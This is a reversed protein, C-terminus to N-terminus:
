LWNKLIVKLNDKIGAKLIDDRVILDEEAVKKNNATYIITGVKTGRSLPAELNEILQIEKKINEEDDKALLIKVENKQYVLAEDIIGKQIKISGLPNTIKEGEITKFNTYGVDLLKSAEYFRGASSEGGLIVSILTLSDRTATATICFGAARTYGTKLGTIGNYSRLLKNTNWLETVEDGRRTSHVIEDSWLTTYELVEEHKLLERSMIAVDKATSYHGVDTLGCTDLFYTNTMGLEKARKNMMQVFIEESGAIHEAIAVSADNGSAIVISKVLAEVTQTEGTELFVQSGGMGAANASIIVKDNMNIKGSELAEFTLLLTMVKTVSAIPLKEDMNKEFIIEGTSGEMLVGAKSEITTEFANVKLTNSFLLVGVMVISIIKRM